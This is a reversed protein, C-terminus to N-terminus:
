TLHGMEPGSGVYNASRGPDSMRKGLCNMLEKVVVAEQPHICWDDSRRVSLAGARQESNGRQIKGVQRTRRFAAHVYDTLQSSLTM